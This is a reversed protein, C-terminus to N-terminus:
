IKFPIVVEKLEEWYSIKLSVINNTPPAFSFSKETGTSMSGNSAVVKDKDILEIGILATLDGKASISISGDNSNGVLAATMAGVLSKDSAAPPTTTNTAVPPAYTIRYPGVDASYPKSLDFNKVPANVLKKSTTLTIEGELKVKQLESFIPKDIEVSFIGYIGDKTVNPFSGQSYSPEGLRNTSIDAGNLTMKTIKLSESKFGVLDASKAMFSISPKDGCYNPKERFTVEAPLNACDSYGIVTAAPVDAQSQQAFALLVSAALSTKISTNTMLYDQIVHHTKIKPLPYFKVRATLLHWFLKVM